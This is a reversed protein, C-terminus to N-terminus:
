AEGTYRDTELVKTVEDTSLGAETALRILTTYDSM